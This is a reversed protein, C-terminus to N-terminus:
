GTFCLLRVGVVDVTPSGHSTLTVVLTGTSATAECVWVESCPLQANGQFLSGIGDLRIWSGGFGTVSAVARDNGINYHSVLLVAFAGVTPSVSSTTYTLDARGTFGQELSADLVIAM